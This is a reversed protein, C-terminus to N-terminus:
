RPSLNVASSRMPNPCEAFGGSVYECYEHASQALSTARLTPPPGNKTAPLEM